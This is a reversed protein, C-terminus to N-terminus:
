LFSYLVQRMKRRMSNDAGDAIQQMYLFLLDKEPDIMMYCGPLGDWGYEGLSGNTTGASKDVLVRMFNGYSYGYISDFYITKYQKKTLQPTRIFDVTAKSLIRRGHWSGNGLLMEMFHMYDEMSSYLGSGGAEITRLTGYRNTFLIDLRKDTAPRLKGTEDFEYMTAIRDKESPPICFGTDKMELPEFIEKKMFEGLSLGSIKEIIIGMVDASAGYRWAQGPEFALPASAFARGADESTVPEGQKRRRTLTATCEAMAKAPLDEEGPYVIGSTMNLLDRVLIDKKCPRLSGDPKMVKMSDFYPLYDKVPALLDLEGREYLLFACVSTIPKTMSFIRYIQNEKDTGFHKRYLTKGGQAIWLSAGCLRGSQIENEMFRTMYTDLYSM